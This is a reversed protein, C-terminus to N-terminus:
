CTRGILAVLTSEFDGIAEVTFHHTADARDEILRAPYFFSRLDTWERPRRLTRVRSLSDTKDRVREWDIKSLIAIDALELQLHSALALLKDPTASRLRRNELRNITPQDVGTLESLRNGSLDLETRRDRIARAKVQLRTPIEGAFIENLLRRIEQYDKACHMSACGILM